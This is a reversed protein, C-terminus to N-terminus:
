RLRLRLTLGLGEPAPAAVALVDRIPAFPGAAVRTFLEARLLQDPATGPIPATPNLHDIVQAVDLYALIRGPQLAEPPLAAQLQSQLRPEKGPNVVDDFRKLGYALLLEGKGVYAGAPHHGLLFELRTGEGVKRVAPPTHAGAILQQLLGLALDPREVHGEALLEGRPMPVQTDILARYYEALDFYAAIAAGRDLLSLLQQVDVGERSLTEEVKGHGGPRSGFLGAFLSRADGPFSLYLAAGAPAHAPLAPARGGAPFLASLPKQGQADLAVLAKGAVADDSLVFSGLLGQVHQGLDEPRLAEPSVLASKSMFLQVDGGPLQGKLSKVMPSDALGGDPARAFHGLALAPELHEGPVRVVLYGREHRFYIDDAAGPVHARVFGEPGDEFTGGAHLLAARLAAGSKVDDSTGILLYRGSREEPFSVWAVGEDLDVGAAKLADPSRLDFGLAEQMRDLAEDVQGQGLARALLTRYAPLRNWLHDFCLAQEAQPPVAMLPSRRAVSVHLQVRREGDGDKVIETATADGAFPFAHSVQAGDARAGDSFEWHVETGAPLPAKADGFTVPVGAIAQRPEPSALPYRHACGGLCLALLAARRTSM